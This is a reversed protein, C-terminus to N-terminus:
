GVVDLRRERKRELAVLVFVPLESGLVRVLLRDGAQLGPSKAVSKRRSVQAQSGSASRKRGAEKRPVHLRNVEAKQSINSAAVHDAEAEFGCRVCCFRDRTPRNEKTIHDCCPCQRSTNRPDVFAVDLGNALAKYVIMARLQHFAWGSHRARQPQRVTTRERIGTLDELAIGRSTGQAAKRILSNAIRHNEIQRFRAEKGSINKLARRASRTGKAQLEARLRAYKQRVREVAAGTYTTGDSDTALSKVGLDVGLFHDEPAPEEAELETSFYLYAKGKRVCLKAEGVRALDALLPRQAPAVGYACRIRKDPGLLSVEGTDPFLTYLRQDYPFAADKRFTPCGTPKAALTDAVSGIVRCAQQSSLGFRERLAYYFTHHIKLSSRLDTPWVQAALWTRAENLRALLAVLAARQDPRLRLKVPVTLTVVAFFASPFLWHSRSALAPHRIRVSRFPRKRGARM